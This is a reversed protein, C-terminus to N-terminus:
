NFTSDTSSNISRNLIPEISRTVFDVSMFAVDERDCAMNVKYTVCWRTTGSADPPAATAAAAASAVAAAPAAPAVVAASAVSPAAPLKIVVVAFNLKTSRAPDSLNFRVPAVPSRAFSPM